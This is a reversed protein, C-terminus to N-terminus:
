GWVPRISMTTPSSRGDLKDELSRIYDRLRSANAPTYRILSGDSDRVEVPRGGTMLEHYAKRAEDLLEATSPM